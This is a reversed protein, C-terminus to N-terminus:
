LEVVYPFDSLWDNLYQEVQQLSDLSKRLKGLADSATKGDAMPL